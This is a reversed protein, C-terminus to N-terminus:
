VSIPMWRNPTVGACFAAIVGDLTVRSGRVCITGASDTSLPVTATTPLASM